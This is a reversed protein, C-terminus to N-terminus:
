DRDHRWGPLEPRTTGYLYRVYGGVRAMPSGLLNEIHFRPIGDKPFHLLDLGLDRHVTEGVCFGIGYFILGLRRHGILHHRTTLMVCCYLTHLPLWALDTDFYAGLVVLLITAVVVELKQEDFVLDMAAAWNEIQEIAQDVATEAYSIIDAIIQEAGLSDIIPKTCWPCKISTTGRQASALLLLCETGIIHGCPLKRPFERSQDQLFDDYCIPCTQDEVENPHLLQTTELLAKLNVAM